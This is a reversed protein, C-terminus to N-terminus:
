VRENCNLNVDSQELTRIVQSGAGRVLKEGGSKQHIVGILIDQGLMEKKKQGLM